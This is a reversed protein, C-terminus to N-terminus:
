IQENIIKIIKFNEGPNILYSNKYKDTTKNEGNENIITTDWQEVMEVCIVGDDDITGREAVLSVLEQSIKYDISKLWEVQEIVENYVGSEKEVCNVANIIGLNIADNKFSLYESIIQQCTKMASATINMKISLKQGAMVKEDYTECNESSVSIKYVAFPFKSIIVEGSRNDFQINEISISALRPIKIHWDYIYDDFIWVGKNNLEELRITKEGTDTQIVYKIYDKSKEVNIININGGYNYDMYTNFIDFSFDPNEIFTYLKDYDKTILYREFSDKGMRIILFIGVLIIFAILILSTRLLKKERDYLRKIEM